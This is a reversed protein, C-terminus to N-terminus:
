RAGSKIATVVAKSTATPNQAGNVNITIPASGAGMTGRKAKAVSTKSTSKTKAASAILHVGPGQLSSLPALPTAATTTPVSTAGRMPMRSPYPINTGPLMTNKQGKTSAWAIGAALAGPLGVYPAVKTLAGTALGGTAGAGLAAGEATAAAGAAGAVGTFAATLTALVGLLADVKPAVWIAALTAVFAEVIGKNDGIWKGFAKLAPIGDKILWDTIKTFTPLLANGLQEELAKFKVQLVSWPNAQAAAAAAGKTRAEILTLIQELTAGKPITKGIALGLDALGRAQGMSARAVTDSAAALSEHKFAALDAAVSLSQLATLPSRTAATMQALATYTDETSFGLNLMAEAQRDIYPKANAFSVGTDTIATKLNAQAKQVSLAAKIGAVAMVGFAGGLGLLAVGAFKSAKTMVDISGGAKLANKQMKDLEANVKQMSAIAQTAKAQIELIVPPLFDAM